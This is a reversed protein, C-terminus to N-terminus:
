RDGGRAAGPGNRAHGRGLRRGDPQRQRRRRHLHWRRVRGGPGPRDARHLRISRLRRLRLRQLLHRGRRHAADVRDAVTRVASRDPHRGGALRRTRDPLGPQDDEHRGPRHRGGVAPHRRRRHRHQHAAHREPLRGPRRGRHQRHRRGHAAGHHRHEGVPDDTRVRTDFTVVATGAEIIRGSYVLTFGVVPTLESETAALAEDRTVTRSAGGALQLTITLDTAGIDAPDTIELLDALNFEEFPEAGAAPETITLRDVKRPTTNKAALTVRGTPYGDPFTATGPAPVGLPGGTWDKTIDATVSVPTIVIDDSDDQHYFEDGDVILTARATNRVVGASGPVNYVDDALVPVDNDSRLEDRIRFVTHLQRNNDTSDAVGSGIPPATPNDVVRNPSEAYTLRFALTDAQSAASLAYGPFTKDCAAPCPDNPADIWANQSLSYLEVGTIQDYQLRPDLAATIPDIRVLDFSDFVSSPLGAVSPAATDSIEMEEIGTAGNTSWSITAGHEEQTREGVVAPDDWAKDVFDANGPTPPVIHIDDCAPDGQAPDVADNDSSASSSACDDITADTNAASPKLEFSLNPDVETGPPFGTDSHYVFRIGDADDPVPDPFQGTFVQPGALDVMGPVDIWEEGDWYQVTLTSDAPIPTNVVGTPSFSDFWTDGDLDAPEQVIIDNADTTTAPFDAVTGSLEVLVQQGPVSFIQSPLVTKGTDIDIRKIITTLTDTANADGSYGGPATSDATVVNPHDVEDTAQDEDATVTFPVSAEAGPVIPGTFTVTFGTVTRGPTPDPLTDPQTTSEEVPSPPNAYSFSVTAGTAGEPWQVDGWGSFTLGNEFMNPQGGPETLSLSDLTRDSSNTAGITVRSASGAAITDPDFSKSADLDIDASTITYDDDATAPDSTDGGATVTTSVENSIPGEGADAINDRQELGVDISGSADPAINAGDTSIFHVRVGECDAPDVGAPLAAPPAGPDGDVWDGGVYCDVQVQEAGAPLTVDLDGTLGLYTFAGPPDTPDTMTIEDVPVNSANGGTLTMTTATGPNAVASDPDFSKDTTAALDVPIDPVVTFDDSAPDTNTGDVTATNTLDQGDLEPSIDDDVQVPIQIEVNTGPQLGQGGVPDDLPETFDVTVDNGTASATGAGAPAISIDGPGDDLSIGEPLSDELVASTCGGSGVNTCSITITYVFTDGPAVEQGDTFGDVTKTIDLEGPDEAYAPLAMLNPSLALALGLLFILWRPRRRSKTEKPDPQRRM